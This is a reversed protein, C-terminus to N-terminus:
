WNEVAATDAVEMSMNVINLSDSEVELTDLMPMAEEIETVVTSKNPISFLDEPLMSKYSGAGLVTFVIVVIVAIAFIYGIYTKIM